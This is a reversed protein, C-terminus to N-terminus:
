KGIKPRRLYNEATRQSIKLDHALRKAPPPTDTGTSRMYKAIAQRIEDDSRKTRGPPRGGAKTIVWDRFLPLTALALRSGGATRELEIGALRIEWTGGWGPGPLRAELYAATGDPRFRVLRARIGVRWGSPHDGEWGVALHEDAELEVYEGFMELIGAPRDDVRIRPAWSGARPLGLELNLGDEETDDYVPPPLATGLRPWTTV